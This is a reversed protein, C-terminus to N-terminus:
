MKRFLYNPNKMVLEYEGSGAVEAVVQCVPWDSGDESDDFLIYGGPELWRHCNEFDRHAFEYEHNGDIYCFSVPGGLTLERGFVDKVQRQEAWAGFFEDSLMEVTYPLDRRSFFGVNGLYTHRVFERYEDHTIDSLGLPAGPAAGQFEWKDCTILRNARGHKAKFHTLANTSLGCFSGIELIPAESVLRELVYDFCYVNGGHMMGANAFRLWTIFGDDLIKLGM